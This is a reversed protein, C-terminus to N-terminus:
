ALALFSILKDIDATSLSAYGIRIGVEASPLQFVLVSIGNEALQKELMEVTLTKNQERPFSVWVALGGTPKVFRVKDGLKRLQSCLYNKREAYLLTAEKIHRRITGQEILDLIALEMTNDGQVDILSRLEGVKKIVKESGAMMGIRIAPALIKSFSGIYVAKEQPLHRYLPSLRVGSFHFECGYDDEIVYFDYKRVLRTLQQRRDSSLTVTTPFQHRPTLYIANVRTDALIAEVKDVIIGHHDVDVPIINLGACRFTEYAKAYGPNEMIITDGPQLLAHSILYLAMQSGRTICINDSKVCLNRDQNLMRAVASRFREHGYPQTYGLMQWKAARNFLQRYARSLEAFPLITTDPLGDDIFLSGASALAQALAKEEKLPSSPQHNHPQYGNPASQVFTGVRPKNKLWGKICLHEYASVVTKRSVNLQEALDRSSPLADDTHLTGNRILELITNSVQLYLPVSNDEPHLEINYSWPRLM